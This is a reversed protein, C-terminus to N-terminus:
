ILYWVRTYPEYNVLKKRKLYSLVKSAYQSSYQTYGGFVYKCINYHSQGSEGICTSSLYKIIKKGFIIKDCTEM